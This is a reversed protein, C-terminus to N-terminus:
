AVLLVKERQVWLLLKISFDLVEALVALSRPYVTLPWPDVSTPSLGLQHLLADQLPDLLVGTSIMGHCFRSLASSFEVYVSAAFCIVM